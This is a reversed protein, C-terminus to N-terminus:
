ILLKRVLKTPKEDAMEVVQLRNACFRELEDRQAHLEGKVEMFEDLRRALATIREYCRRYPCGANKGDTMSVLWAELEENSM